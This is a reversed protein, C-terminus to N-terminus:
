VDTAVMNLLQVMFKFYEFRGGATALCPTFGPSFARHAIERHVSMLYRHASPVMLDRTVAECSFSFASFQFHVSSLDTDENNRLVFSRVIGARARLVCHTGARPIAVPTRQHPSQATPVWAAVATGM